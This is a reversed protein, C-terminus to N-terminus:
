GWEVDLQRAEEGRALKSDGLIGRPENDESESEIDSWFRVCDGSSGEPENNGEENEEAESDPGMDFVPRLRPVNSHGPDPVPTTSQDISLDFSSTVNCQSGTMVNGAGLDVSHGPVGGDQPEKPVNQHEKADFEDAM